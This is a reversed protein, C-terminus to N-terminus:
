WAPAPQEAEFTVCACPEELDAPEEGRATLLGGSMEWGEAVHAQLSVNERTYRTQEKLVPV